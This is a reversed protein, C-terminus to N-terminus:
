SKRPVHRWDFRRAVDGVTYGDSRIADVIQDETVQAAFYDVYAFSTLPSVYVTVVGALRRLATELATAADRNQSLGHVPFARSLPEPVRDPNDPVPPAFPIAAQAPRTDEVRDTGMPRPVRRRGGYRLYARYAALGVLILLALTLLTSLAM